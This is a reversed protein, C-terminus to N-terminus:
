RLKAWVFVAIVAVCVALGLMAGLRQQKLRRVMIQDEIREFDRILTGLRLLHPVAIIAASAAVLVLALASFRNL